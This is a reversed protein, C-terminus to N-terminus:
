IVGSDLPLRLPWVSFISSTSGPLSRGLATAIRQGALGVIALGALKSWATVAAM